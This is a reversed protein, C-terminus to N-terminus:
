VVIGQNPLNVHVQVEVVAHRLAQSMDDLAEYAEPNALYLAQGFYFADVGAKQARKITATLEATLAKACSQRIVALAGPTLHLVREPRQAVVGDYNLTVRVHLRRDSAIVANRTVKAKLSRVSAHGLPTPFDFAGKGLKGRLAMVSETEAPTFVFPPRGRRLAAVRNIDITGDSAKGVPVVAVGSPSALDAEVRWAPVGYDVSQCGQCNFHTSYFFAPLREQMPPPSLLKEAPGDALMFWETHDTEGLRQEEAILRDRLLPPLDAGLILVHMQGLYIDRSTENEMQSIAGDFSPAVAQVTYFQNGGGSSGSLSQPSPIELSYKIKGQAAKDAAVGLVLARDDIPKIGAGIGCGALPLVALALAILRRARM